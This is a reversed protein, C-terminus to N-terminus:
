YFGVVPTSLTQFVQKRVTSFSPHKGCSIIKRVVGTSLGTGFGISVWELDVPYERM